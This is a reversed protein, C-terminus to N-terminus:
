LPRKFVYTVQTISGYVATVTSALEWGQAGLDNIERLTPNEMRFYEWKTSVSQNAVPIPVTNTINVNATGQEHVKINGNTDLNQERVQFLTPWNTILVNQIQNGAAQVYGMSTAGVVFM